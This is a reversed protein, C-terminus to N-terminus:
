ILKAYPAIKSAPGGYFQVYIQALFYITFVLAVSLNSWWMLSAVPSEGCNDKSCCGGSDNAAALENLVSFTLWALVAFILSMYFNM